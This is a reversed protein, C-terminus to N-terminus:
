VFFWHWESRVGNEARVGVFVRCMRLFIIQCWKGRASFHDSVMKQFRSVDASFHGSVTKRPCRKGRASFHDSVMKKSVMKKGSFHDSVMKPEECFFSRVGNEPCASFHDSVM